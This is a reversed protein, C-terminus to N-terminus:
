GTTCSKASGRPSVSSTCTANVTAPNGVERDGCDVTGRGGRGFNSGRGVFQQRRFSRRRPTAGRTGRVGQVLMMLLEFRRRHVRACALRFRHSGAASLWAPWCTSPSPVPSAPVSYSWALRPATEEHRAADLLVMSSAVIVGDIVTPYLRAAMGPEGHASVLAVAHLYLDM